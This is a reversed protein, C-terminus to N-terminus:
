VWRHKKAQFPQLQNKPNKLQKKLHPKKNDKIKKNVRKRMRLCRRLRRGNLRWSKTVKLRKRRQKKRQIQKLDSRKSSKWNNLHLITEWCKDWKLRTKQKKRRKVCTKDGKWKWQSLLEQKILWNSSHFLWNKETQSLNLSLHM